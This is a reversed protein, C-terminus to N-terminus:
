HFMVVRKKSISILFTEVLINWLEAATHDNSLSILVEQSLTVTIYSIISQDWKMWPIYEPNKVDATSVIDGRENKVEQLINHSPVLM